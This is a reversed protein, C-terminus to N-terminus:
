RDGYVPGTDNPRINKTTLGHAKHRTGPYIPLMSPASYTLDHDNQVKAGYHTFEVDNNTCM